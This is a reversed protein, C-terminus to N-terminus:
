PQRQKRDQRDLWKLILAAKGDGRGALTKIQALQASTERSSEQASAVAQRSEAIGQVRSGIRAPHLACGSCGLILGMALGAFLSNLYRTARRHRDRHESM